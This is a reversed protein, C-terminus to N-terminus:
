LLREYAQKELRKFYSPDTGEPSSAEEVRPPPSCTTRCHRPMKPESSSSRRSPSKRKRGTPSRSRRDDPPPEKSATSRLPPPPPLPLCKVGVSPVGTIVDPLELRSLRKGKKSKKSSKRPIKEPERPATRPSITEVVSADEYPNGLAEPDSRAPSMLGTPPSGLSRRARARADKEALRKRIVARFEELKASIAAEDHRENLLLGEFEKVRWTLERGHRTVQHLRHLQVQQCRLYERAAEQKEPPFIELTKDILADTADSLCANMVGAHGGDPYGDAQAYIAPEFTALFKHTILLDVREGPTSGVFVEGMNVALTYRRSDQLTTISAM